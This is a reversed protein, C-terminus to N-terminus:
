NAGRSVVIQKLCANIIKQRLQQTQSDLQERLKFDNLLRQLISSVKQIDHDEIFLQIRWAENHENLTWQCQESLWYLSKRVVAESYSAKPLKVEQEM